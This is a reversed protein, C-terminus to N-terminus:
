LPRSVVEPRDRRVALVGLATWGVTFAALGSIILVDNFGGGSGGAMMLIPAIGLLAAARRSLVGARYTAIAFLSSGVFFTLLGFFFADTLEGGGFAVDVTGVLLAVTGVAPVIFAAWSLAPQVRSQFASLGALAVLLSLSGGVMMVASVGVDASGFRENLIMFGATWLPAGVIAALGGLRLSMTFGGRLAPRSGVNRLRLQADIAGLLIDAADFPGLPREELIALFEDGYRAKWRPPYLGILFARM